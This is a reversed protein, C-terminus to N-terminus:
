LGGVPGVIWKGAVNWTMVVANHNHADSFMASIAPVSGKGKSISLGCAM